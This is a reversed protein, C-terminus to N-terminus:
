CRRACVCLLLSLPSLAVILLSLPVLLSFVSTRRPLRRRQQRVALRTSHQCHHTHTVQKQTDSAHENHTYRQAIVPFLAASWMRLATDSAACIPGSMGAYARAVRSDPVRLESVLESFVASVFLSSSVASDGGGAQEEKDKGDPCLLRIFATLAAALAARVEAREAADATQLWLRKLAAQVDSLFPQLASSWAEKWGAGGQAQDLLTQLTILSDVQVAAAADDEAKDLLVPLFHPLLAPHSTLARRLGLRLEDPSIHHPDHLPPTFTIPFYCGVVDFLSASLRQVASASCQRLLFATLAFVVVLCRPDKEGDVAAIFGSLLELEEEEEEMEERGGERLAHPHAAWLLSLCDFVCHRASQVLSQVAVSQLLRCRWCRVLCLPLPSATLPGRLVHLRSALHDSSVDAARQPGRLPVPPLRALAASHPPM